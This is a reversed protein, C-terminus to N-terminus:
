LFAYQVFFSLSSLFLCSFSFFHSLSICLLCFFQSLCLFFSLALSLSGQFSSGFSYSLSSSPLCCVAISSSALLSSYFHLSSLLSSLPSRIPCSFLSTLFGSLFFIFFLPLSIYPLCFYNLSCCPLLSPPFFVHSLFASPTLHHPRPFDVFPLLHPLLFDFFFSPLFAPLCASLFGIPCFFFSPHSFCLRFFSFFHSLSIWKLCFINHCPFFSSSLSFYHVM